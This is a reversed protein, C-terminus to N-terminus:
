SSDLPFVCWMLLCIENFLYALNNHHGVTIHLTLLLTQTCLQTIDRYLFNTSQYNEGNDPRYLSTLTTLSIEFYLGCWNEYSRVLSPDSDCIEKLLKMIRDLMDKDCNIIQLAVLVGAYVRCICINWLIMKELLQTVHMM